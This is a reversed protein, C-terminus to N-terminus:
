PGTRAGASPAPEITGRVEGFGVRYGGGDCWGSITVTDGDELFTRTGGGALPLPNKGNWTLELLSGFSDPASGSITGSGM